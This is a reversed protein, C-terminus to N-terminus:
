NNDPSIKLFPFIVFFTSTDIYFFLILRSIPPFVFLCWFFLKDKSSIICALIIHLQNVLMNQSSFLKWHLFVFNSKVVVGLPLISYNFMLNLVTQSMDRDGSYIVNYTEIYLCIVSIVGPVKNLFM